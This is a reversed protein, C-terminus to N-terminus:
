THANRRRPTGPIAHPVVDSSDEDNHAEPFSGVCVRATHRQGGGDSRCYHDQCYSYLSRRFPEWKWLRSFSTLLAVDKCGHRRKGDMTRGTIRALRINISLAEPPFFGPFDVPLPTTVDEDHITLPNGTAAALRRTFYLLTM